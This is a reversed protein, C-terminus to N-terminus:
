KASKLAPDYTINCKVLRRNLVDMLTNEVLWAPATPAARANKHLLLDDFEGVQQALAAHPHRDGLRDIRERREVLKRELVALDELVRQAGGHHLAALVNRAEVLEKVQEPGAEVVLEALYQRVREAPDAQEFSQPLKVGCRQCWRCLEDKTLAINELVAQAGPDLHRLEIGALWEYRSCDSRDTLSWALRDEVALLHGFAIERSIRQFDRPRACDDEESEPRSPCPSSEDVNYLDVLGIVPRARPENWGLNRHDFKDRWFDSLLRDLIDTKSYVNEHPLEESIEEFTFSKCSPDLM